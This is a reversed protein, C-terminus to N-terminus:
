YQVPLIFSHIFPITLSSTVVEEDSMMGCLMCIGIASFSPKHHISHLSYNIINHRSIMQREVDHVPLSSKRLSYNIINRRSFMRRAVDCVSFSSKYLSYNIIKRRSFTRGRVDCISSPKRPVSNISYDIM